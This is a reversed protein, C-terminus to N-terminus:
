KDRDNANRKGSLVELHCPQRKRREALVNFQMYLFPTPRAVNRLPPNGAEEKQRIASIKYIGASKKGSM